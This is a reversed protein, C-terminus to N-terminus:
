EGEGRDRVSLWKKTSILSLVIAGAWVPLYLVARWLAGKTHIECCLAAGVLYYMLDAILSLSVGAGILLAGGFFWRAPLLFCGCLILTKVGIVFTRPRLLLSFLLTREGWNGKRFITWIEQWYRWVVEGHGQLWRARQKAAAAVETPKPDYAIAEPVFMTPVECRTLILSLEMDEARTHPLPGFKLFVERRFAMGTGRLPVPWGLTSRASDDVEQSLAESSAVLTSLPTSSYPDSQVKGQGVEMGDLFAQNFFLLANPHLRTDADCVVVADFPSLREREQALFQSLARGKRGTQEAWTMCTAGNERAFRATRDTCGDAIVIVAFRESPYHLTRLQRVTEGIVREENHAPIVLAFSLFHAPFVPVEAREESGPRQRLRVGLFFLKLGGDALLITWFPLLCLLFVKM